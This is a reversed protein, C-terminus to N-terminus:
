PVFDSMVENFWAIAKNISEDRTQHDAMQDKNIPEPRWVVMRVAHGALEVGIEGNAYKKPKQEAFGKGATRKLPSSTSVEVSVEVNSPDLKPQTPKKRKPHNAQFEINHAKLRERLAHAQELSKKFRKQANHDAIKDEYREVKLAREKSNGSGSFGIWVDSLGDHSRFRRAYKLGKNKIKITTFLGSVVIM